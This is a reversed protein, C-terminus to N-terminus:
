DGRAVQHRGMEQASEAGGKKSVNTWQVRWVDVNIEDLHLLEYMGFENDSNHRAAAAV